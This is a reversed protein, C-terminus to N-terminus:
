WWGKRRAWVLLASSMVLMVLLALLLFGFHTSESVIVNMGLISSLATIPLTVAAIVALREAAITMKTNTRAQYFEITGQLYDKQADAMARLRDFQDVIDEVYSQGAAQFVAITAMQGYVGSEIRGQVARVEVMAADPSVAPNLPGHVTVLYNRGIFQDLEVYHVHGRAGLEPAHLIVFVHDAYVHVKPVPNREGCDRVALPHLKFVDSLVREAEADWAPIDVWVLGDERGLLAALEDVSHPEIATPSLFRIDM